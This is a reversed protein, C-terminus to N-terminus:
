ANNFKELWDILDDLSNFDLLAEGLDELVSVSLGMVRAEFNAPLEGVKRKLQRVILLTAEQQIGQEVGQQIGEQKVEDLRAKYIPSLKMILEKDEATLDQSKEKNLQLMTFLNSVLELVSDRYANDVSLLKLEEIAKEQVKGKGLMRLWLTEKNVPLQHIVIIRTSLPVPLFYIGEEWDEKRKAEFSNLITDSLTPTLIWLNVEEQGKNKEKNKKKERSISTKVDSLKGICEIIQHTYVSNRYVEFLCITKLFKKLLGLQNSENIIKKHPQFFVDIEKIQSAIKKGSFVIGYDKILEPLYEKVFDDHPFQSM